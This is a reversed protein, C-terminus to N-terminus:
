KDLCEAQLLIQSPGELRLLFEADECVFVNPSKERGFNLAVSNKEPMYHSGDEAYISIMWGYDVHEYRVYRGRFLFDDAHAAGASSLLLLLAILTKM